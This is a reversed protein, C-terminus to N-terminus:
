IYPGLVDSHHQVISSPRGLVSPWAGVTTSRTWSADIVILYPPLDSLRDGASKPGVFLDQLQKSPIEVSDFKDRDLLARTYSISHRALTLIIYKQRRTARLINPVESDLTEDDLDFHHSVTNAITSKDSDADCTLLLGASQQAIL